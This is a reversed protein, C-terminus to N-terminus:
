GSNKKLFSRKVQFIPPSLFSCRNRALKKEQSTSFEQRLLLISDERRLFVNLPGFTVRIIALALQCCASWLYCFIAWQWQFDKCYSFSWQPEFDSDGLSELFIGFNNHQLSVASYKLIAFLCLFVLELHLSVKPFNKLKQANLRGCFFLLHFGGSLNSVDQNPGWRM